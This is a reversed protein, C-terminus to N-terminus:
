RVGYTNDAYGQGQGEALPGRTNPRPAHPPDANIDSNHYCVHECACLTASADYKIKSPRLFTGPM